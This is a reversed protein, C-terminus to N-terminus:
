IYGFVQSFTHCTVPGHTSFDSTSFFTKSTTM